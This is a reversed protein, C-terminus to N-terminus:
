YIALKPMARSMLTKGNQIIKKRKFKIKPKHIRPGGQPIPAVIVM